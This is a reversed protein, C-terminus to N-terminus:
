SVRITLILSSQWVENKKVAPFAYKSIISFIDRADKDKFKSWRMAQGIESQPFILDATDGTMNAFEENELEKEDLSRIFMLYTLQEIVTM